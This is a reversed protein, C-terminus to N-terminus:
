CISLWIIWFIGNRFMKGLNIVNLKFGIRLGIIMTFFALIVSNIGFWNYALTNGLRAGVKGLVNDYDMLPSDESVNIVLQLLSQDHKWTGLFSLISFLMVLGAFILVVGLTAHVTKDKFFEKIKSFLSPGKTAKKKRKKRIAM